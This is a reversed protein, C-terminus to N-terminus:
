RITIDPLVSPYESPYSCSLIVETQPPCWYLKFMKFVKLLLVMKSCLLIVGEMSSSDLKHKILFQPRSPPPNDGSASGEVYNRLEALALPETLELEDHSPFMSTLLEIEALQSEAWELYSM